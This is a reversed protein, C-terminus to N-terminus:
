TARDAIRMLVNKSRLTCLDLPLNNATSLNKAHPMSKLVFAKQIAFLDFMLKTDKASLVSRQTRKLILRCAQVSM